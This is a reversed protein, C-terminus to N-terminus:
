KEARVALRAELAARAADENALPPPAIICDDHADDEPRGEVEVAALARRLRMVERRMADFAGMARRPAGRPRADASGTFRLAERVPKPLHAVGRPLTKRARDLLIAELGCLQELAMQADRAAADMRPAMELRLARMQALARESRSSSPAIATTTTTM